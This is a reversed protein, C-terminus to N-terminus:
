IAFDARGHGIVVHKPVAGRSHRVGLLIVYISLGPGGGLYSMWAKDDM